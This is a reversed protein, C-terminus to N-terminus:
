NRKKFRSLGLSLFFMLFYFVIILFRYKTFFSLSDIKRAKGLLFGTEFLDKRKIINGHNDIIFSIGGQAARILYRNNEVARFVSYAAHLYPIITKRFGADNTSVVIYDGGKKTNESVLSDFTSEFCIVPVVSITNNKLFTNEKGKEFYDEVIPVTRIKDYRKNDDGYLLFLSNREGQNNRYPTGIIFSTDTEISKMEFFEKYFASDDNLIFRHLATEPWVLLDCDNLLAKETLSIYIKEILRHYKRSFTEMSYMWVPIGGQVVCVDDYKKTQMDSDQGRFLYPTIMLLFISLIIFYNAKRHKIMARYLLINILFICTSIFYIGFYSAFGILQPVKWLSIGLNSAFGFPGLTRLYELVPVSLLATIFSYRKYLFLICAFNIALLFISYFFIINGYLLFGSYILIGSFVGFLIGTLISKKISGRDVIYFVPIFALFVLYPMENGPMSLFLLISSVLIFILSYLSKYIM